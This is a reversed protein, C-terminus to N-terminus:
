LELMEDTDFDRVALTGIVEDWAMPSIGTGPRKVTLNESSLLAGSQIPVRAVISKRAVARMAIESTTPAKMRSGLAVEINRIGTIMERLEGPELSAKHDPGEMARDLTFHKEVVVAGLAVAAIAVEIGLTHDSYGVKVGLLDRMANMARLNVDVMPTPYQTTCHLVTMNSKSLGADELVAIAAQVESLDAMGTSIITQCKLAGIHRLMPLNTLEGSPVKVLDVGLTVLLDISEIDFGTSLFEIGMERCHGAIRQHDELSLELQKLMEFQTEDPHMSNVQYNAKAGSRTVLREASYTQFKVIDAGAAHAADVLALALSTDGNHNVGAEAIVLTRTM